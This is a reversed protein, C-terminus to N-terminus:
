RERKLAYFARVSIYIGRESGNLHHLNYCVGSREDISFPANIPANTEKTPPIESDRHKM